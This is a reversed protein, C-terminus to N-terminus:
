ADSERCIHVLPNLHPMTSSGGEHKDPNCVDCDQCNLFVFLLLYYIPSPDDGQDEHGQLSRGTREDNQGSQVQCNGEQVGEDDGAQESKEAVQDHKPRSALFTLLFLFLNRDEM